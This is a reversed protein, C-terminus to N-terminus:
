HDPLAQDKGGDSPLPWSIRTWFTAGIKGAVAHRTNRSMTSPVVATTASPDHPWAASAACDARCPVTDGTSL